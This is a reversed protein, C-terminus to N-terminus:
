AESFGTAHKSPITENRVSVKGWAAARTAIERPCLTIQSEFVIM